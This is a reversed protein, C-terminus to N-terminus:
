RAPLTSIFQSIKQLRKQYETNGLSKLVPDEDLAKLYQQAVRRASSSNSTQADRYRSRLDSIQKVNVNKPFVISKLQIRDSVYIELTPDLNQVSETKRHLIGAKAIGQVIHMQWDYKEYLPGPRLIVSHTPSKIESFLKLCHNLAETDGTYSFTEAGNIWQLMRRSPQNVVEIVGPLGKYNEASQPKNGAESHAAGEVDNATSLMSLAIFFPFLRM